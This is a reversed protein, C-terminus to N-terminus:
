VLEGRDRNAEKRYYNYRERIHHPAAYASIVSELSSPVFGFQTSFDSDSVMDKKLQTNQAQSVTAMPAFAGLFSMVKANLQCMPLVMADKQMIEATLQALEKFSLREEGVMELKHGYTASDKIISVFAKAFDKIWLPQVTTKSNAVMLLPARNIQNIFRQTSDDHEGILLGAKVITVAAKATNHMLNDVEALEGFWDAHPANSDAGIQSLSIVRKVHCSEMAAKLHQNALTLDAQEIMETGTSRDAMLNIVIDSGQIAAQLQQANDFSDLTALRTNPYLLFERFREARRVVVRTQYGAKSLENLVAKGVFGTGGILTVTNALLMM